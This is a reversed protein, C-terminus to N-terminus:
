QLRAVKSSNFETFWTPGRSSIVIGRPGSNVTPIPYETVIGSQTITAVMNKAAETFVLNSEFRNSTIGTPDPKTGQLAFEIFQDGNGPQQVQPLAGSEIKSRDIVAGSSTCGWLLLLSAYALARNYM